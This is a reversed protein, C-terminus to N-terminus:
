GSRLSVILLRTKDDHDRSLGGPEVTVVQLMVHRMIVTSICATANSRGSSCFMPLLSVTLTAEYEDVALPIEDM